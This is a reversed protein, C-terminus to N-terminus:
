IGTEPTPTRQGGVSIKTTGQTVNWFITNEKRESIMHYEKRM